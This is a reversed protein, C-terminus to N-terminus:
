QFDLDLIHTHIQDNKTLSPLESHAVGQSRRCGSRDLPAAAQRLFLLRVSLASCVQRCPRGLGQRGPM